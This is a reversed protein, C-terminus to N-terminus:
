SQIICFFNFRLFTARLCTTPADCSGRVPMARDDCPSGASFALNKSTTKPVFFRVIVTAEQSSRVAGARSDWPRRVTGTCHGYFPVSISCDDHPSRM